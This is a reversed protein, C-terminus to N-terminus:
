SYRKGPTSQPHQGCNLWLSSRYRPCLASHPESPVGRGCRCPSLARSPQLDTREWHLQFVRHFSRWRSPPISSHFFAWKRTETWIRLALEPIELSDYLSPSSSPPSVASLQGECSTECYPRHLFGMQTMHLIVLHACKRKPKHFNVTSVFVINFM